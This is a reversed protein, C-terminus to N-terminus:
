GCTQGQRPPRSHSSRGMGWHGEKCHPTAQGASSSGHTHCLRHKHHQLWKIVRPHPGWTDQTIRTLSKIEMKRDQPQLCKIKCFNQEAPAARDGPLCGGTGQRPLQVYGASSHSSNGTCLQGHGPEPPWVLRHLTTHVPRPCNGQRRHGGLLAPCIAVALSGKGLVMGRPGATRTRGVILGQLVQRGEQLPLGGLLM